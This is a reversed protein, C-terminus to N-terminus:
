IHILSLMGFSNEEISLIKDGCYTVVVNELLGDKNIDLRGWYENLMYMKRAANKNSYEKINIHKKILIQFHAILNNYTIKDTVLKM